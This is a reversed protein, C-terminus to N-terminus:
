VVQQSAIHVLSVRVEFLFNMERTLGDRDGPRHGWKKACGNVWGINFPIIKTESERAGVELQDQKGLSEVSAGSGRSKLM